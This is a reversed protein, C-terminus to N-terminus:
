RVAPPIEGLTEMQVVHKQVAATLGGQGAQHSREEYRRRQNRCKPATNSKM